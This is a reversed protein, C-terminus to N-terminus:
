DVAAVKGEERTYTFEVVTGAKPLEIRSDRLNDSFRFPVLKNTNEQKLTGTGTAMDIEVITGRLTNDAGAMAANAFVFVLTLFLLKLYRM